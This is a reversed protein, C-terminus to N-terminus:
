NKRSKIEEIEDEKKNFFIFVGIILIPIGYILIWLDKLISLVILFLGLLTAMVGTVTRSMKNM